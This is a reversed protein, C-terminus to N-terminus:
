PDTEFFDVTMKIKKVPSSNRSADAIKQSIEGIKPMFPVEFPDGHHKSANPVIFSLNLKFKQGFLQRIRDWTQQLNKKAM